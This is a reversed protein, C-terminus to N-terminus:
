DNEDKYDDNKKEEESSGKVLYLLYFSIVSQSDSPPEYSNILMVKKVSTKFMQMSRSKSSKKGRQQRTERFNNM